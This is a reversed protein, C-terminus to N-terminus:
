LMLSLQNNITEYIAKFDRDYKRYQQVMKLAYFYTKDSRNVYKSIQKYDSNSYRNAFHFFLFRANVVEEKRTNSKVLEERIATTTCILKLILKLEM